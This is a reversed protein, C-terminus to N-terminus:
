KTGILALLLLSTMITGIGFALSMALAIGVGKEPAGQVLFPPDFKRENSGEPVLGVM